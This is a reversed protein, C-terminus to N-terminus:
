KKQLPNKRVTKKNSLFFIGIGYFIILFGAGFIWWNFSFTVGAQSLISQSSFLSDFMFSLLCVMSGIILFFLEKAKFHLYRIKGSFYFILIALVIMLLSLLSPALVPSVWPVPILFLLDPTFVSAPWDILVYLFLYYFLDWIAFNYIFWAFREITRKGLIMGVSVLMLLSFFERLLETIALTPPLPKLPFEFGGPYAITRLYVVVASEFFGMSIAFLSSWILVTRKM